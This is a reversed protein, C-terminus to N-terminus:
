WMSAPTGARLVVFWAVILVVVVILSWAAPVAKPLQRKGARGVGVMGGVLAAPVGIWLLLYAANVIALRCKEPTCGDGTVMGAFLSWVGFVGALGFAWLLLRTARASDRKEAPTPPPPGDVWGQGDWYRLATQGAPDLYWGAPPLQTM